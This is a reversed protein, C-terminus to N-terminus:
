LTDSTKQRESIQVVLISVGYLILMPGAMLCQSLADPPTLVGAIIFIGVMVYRWSSRMAKSTLLGARALIFSIVPLEFIVGFGVLIKITLSLHESLKIQPTLAISKYEEKFFDFSLPLVLDYCFVVGALFCATTIIIFPLVYKKESDYLGPAVFRWLQYFIYPLAIIAGAFFSVYIKLTLAEAPGTGILVTEGFIQRIPRTLIEFFFNSYAYTIFSLLVVSAVSHIVCSRLDTLHEMIGMEAFARKAPQENNPDLAPPTNM